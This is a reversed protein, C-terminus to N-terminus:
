SGCLCEDATADAPGVLHPLAVGLTGDDLGALAKGTTCTTTCAQNASAQIRFSGAGTGNMRMTGVIDLVVGPTITGIGVNGEIIMGGNPPATTLFFDGNKVTGIGVNGVISLRQTADNTGIGLNGAMMQVNGGNTIRMNEVSGNNGTKLRISESTVNNATARLELFPNNAALGGILIMNGGTANSITSTIASGDVAFTLTNYNITMAQAGVHNIFGSDNISFYTGEGLPQVQMFQGTSLATTGMGVNGAATITFSHQTNQTSDQFAQFLNTTSGDGVINLFANNQAMQTGIGVNGRVDLAMNPTITGIGVNGTPGFTGIGVSTTIWQSSAGGGTTVTAVSGSCALAGPTFVMRTSNCTQTANDTAVLPKTNQAMVLTPCILLLATILIKRM